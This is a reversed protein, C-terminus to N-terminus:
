KKVPSSIYKTMMEKKAEKMNKLEPDKVVAQKLTSIAKATDELLYHAAAVKVLDPERAENSNQIQILTSQLDEKAKLDNPNKKVNEIGKELKFNPTAYIHQLHLAEKDNPNKKLVKEVQKIAISTDGLVANAQALLKISDSNTINTNNLSNTIQELKKRAEPNTQAEAINEKNLEFGEPSVKVIKITPWGIMVLPFLFFLLLVKIDRKQVVMIILIVLLAIFFVIGMCLLVFEGISIQSLIKEM